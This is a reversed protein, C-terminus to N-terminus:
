DGRKIWYERDATESVEEDEDVLGLSLEDLVKTFILAIDDGSKLANM